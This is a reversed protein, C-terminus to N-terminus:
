KSKPANKLLQGVTESVMAGKKIWAEAAAVDIKIRGEGKVKPNYLGLRELYKGDRPGRVEAAVVHFFPKKKTGARALRLTVAM